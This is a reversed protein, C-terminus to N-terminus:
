AAPEDQLESRRVLTGGWVMFSAFAVVAAILIPFFVWELYRDGLDGRFMFFGFVADALIILLGFSQIWRGECKLNPNPMRASRELTGPWRPRFHGVVAFFIAPVLFLVLWAVMAESTLADRSFVRAWGFSMLGASFCLPGTAAVLWLALGRRGTRTLWRLLHLFLVGLFAGTPKVLMEEGFGSWSFPLYDPLLGARRLLGSFALGLLLLLVVSAAVRCAHGFAPDDFRGLFMELFKRKRNPHQGLNDPM